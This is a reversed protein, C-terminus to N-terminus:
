LVGNFPYRIVENKDWLKFTKKYMLTLIGLFGLKNSRM